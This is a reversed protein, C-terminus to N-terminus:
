DEDAGYVEFKLIDKWTIIGEIESEDNVVPLCSINNELLLISACDVSTERDVTVLESSMITEVRIHLLEKDQPSEKETGLFPSLNRLVDRDSILGVLKGDCQVLLHHYSVESLIQRVQQLTDDPKITHVKASMISQVLM